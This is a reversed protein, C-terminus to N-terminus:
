AGKWADSLFRHRAALAAERGGAGDRATIALHAALPNPASPQTALLTDFAAAVYHDDRGAVREAGIRREVVLRRVATTPRGAADFSPGLLRRAADIVRGREAVLADLAAGEAPAPAECACDQAKVATTCGAGCRGADVLAVHNGRINRQVADYPEGEPTTGPEFLFDAHYGNSLEAGGRARAAADADAIHLTTVLHDGERTVAEGAHGVAYRRWNAADIMTPPHDDTVPKGVFSAMSAPDFVEAPPRWVRLTSGPPFGAPAGLEAATYDHLGARGIRAQLRLFGEPTVDHSTVAATDRIFM